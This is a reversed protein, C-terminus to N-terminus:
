PPACTYNWTDVFTEDTLPRLAALPIDGNDFYTNVVSAAWAGYKSHTNVAVGELDVYGLNHFANAIALAGVDDVDSFIDTDIIIRRRSRVSGAAAAFM